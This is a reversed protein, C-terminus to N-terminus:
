RGDCVVASKVWFGGIFFVLIRGEGEARDGPAGFSYIRLKLRTDGAVIDCQMKGFWRM